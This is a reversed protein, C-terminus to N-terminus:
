ISAKWSCMESAELLTLGGLTEQRHEPLTILFNTLLSLRQSDDQVARVTGSSFHQGKEQLVLTFHLGVGKEGVADAGSLTDYKWLSLVQHGAHILGAISQAVKAQAQDLEALKLVIFARGQSLICLLPSCCPRQGGGALYGALYRWQVHGCEPGRKQHRGM